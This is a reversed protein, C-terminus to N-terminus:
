ANEELGVQSMAQESGNDFVLLAPRQQFRSQPPVFPPALVAQQTELFWKQM